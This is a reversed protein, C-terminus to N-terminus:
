RTSGASPPASVAPHPVDHGGEGVAGRGGGRAAIGGTVAGHAARPLVHRGRDLAAVTQECHVQNPSTIVVAEVEPRDICEEYDTSVHAIGHKRAFAEADAEIGGALSVVEVDEMKELAEM